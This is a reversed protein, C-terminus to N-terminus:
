FRWFIQLASTKKFDMKLNVKNEQSNQIKALDDDNLASVVTEVSIQAIEKESYNKLM